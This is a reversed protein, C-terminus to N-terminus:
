ITAWGRAGAQGLDPLLHTRSCRTDRGTGIEHFTGMAQTVRTLELPYSTFPAGQVMREQPDIHCGVAVLTCPTAKHNAFTNSGRNDSISCTAAGAFSHPQEKGMDGATNVQNKDDAGTLHRIHGKCVQERGDFVQQPSGDDPVVLRVGVRFWLCLWM